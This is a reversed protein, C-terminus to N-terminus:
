LWTFHKEKYRLRTSIGVEFHYNHKVYRTNNWHSMIECFFMYPVERNILYYLRVDVIFIRDYTKTLSGFFDGQWGIIDPNAYVSQGNQEFTNDKGGIIKSVLINFVFRDYYFRFQCLIENLNAGLPHALPQHYHSYSQLLDTHAYMYAGIRNYELLFNLREFLMLRSGIQLATRKMKKDFQDIAYQTYIAFKDNIPLIRIQFGFLANNKDNLGYYIMKSLPLGNFHRLYIANYTKNKPAWVISEFIGFEFKKKQFFRLFIHSAYKNQFGGLASQPASIINNLTVNQLIDFLYDYSFFPLEAHFHFFTRPAAQNSLFLSRYGYGIHPIDRALTIFLLNNIRYSLMGYVVAVDYANNKFHKARNMQPVVLFSDVFERMGYFSRFQTEYLESFFLLRKRLIGLFRFGRTNEYTHRLLTNDYGKSFVFVPNFAFDFSGTKECYFHGSKLKFWLNKSNICATKSKDESILSDTKWVEPYFTGLDQKILIENATIIPQANTYAVTLFLIFYQILAKSVKTNKHM